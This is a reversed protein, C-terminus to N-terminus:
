ILFSQFMMSDHHDQTHCPYHGILLVGGLEDLKYEHPATVNNTLCL